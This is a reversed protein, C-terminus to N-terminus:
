GSRGVAAEKHPGLGVLRSGQWPGQMRASGEAQLAKNEDRRMEKPFKNVGRGRSHKGSWGTSFRLGLELAGADNEEM